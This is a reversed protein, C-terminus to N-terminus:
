ETIGFAKLTRIDEVTLKGSWDVKAKAWDEEFQGWAWTPEWHDNGIIQSRLHQANQLLLSEDFLDAFPSDPATIFTLPTAVYGQWDKPNIKAALKINKALLDHLQKQLGKDANEYLRIYCKIEHPEPTDIEGLRKLTQQSLRELLDDDGVLDTYRLLYGLIEASPNGWEVSTKASEYDWWPARPYQDASPPINVWGNKAEDYSGALYRVAKTILEHGPIVEVQALYQFAVTTALASSHPLRLDPELANGFGGDANQYAALEDLVPQADAGEFLYEYLRLDLKRAHKHLYHKCDM